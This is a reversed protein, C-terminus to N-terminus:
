KVPRARRKKFRSQIKRLETEMKQNNESQSKKVAEMLENVKICLSTVCEETDPDRKIPEIDINDFKKAAMKLEVM